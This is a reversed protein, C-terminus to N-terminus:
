GVAKAPNRRRMRHTRGSESENPDLSSLGIGIQVSDRRHSIDRRSTFPRHPGALTARPTCFACRRTKKQETPKRHTSPAQDLHGTAHSRAGVPRKRAGDTRRLESHEVRRLMLSNEWAQGDDVRNPPSKPRMGLRLASRPRSAASPEPHEVTQLVPDEERAAGRDVRDIRCRCPPLDPM